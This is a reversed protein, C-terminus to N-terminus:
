SALSRSTSNPAAPPPEPMHASWSPEMASMFPSPTRSITTAPEPTGTAPLISPDLGDLDLTLYVDDTLLDVAEGIWDTRGVIDRALFIPIEEDDILRAEPESIARVGVSVTTSVHDRIRRCACAHSNRTGEYEDRLDGHADIHLVSLGGTGESAARVLGPTVSHDGGLSLHFRGDVFSARAAQYIAETMEDASRDGPEVPPLVRYGLSELSVGLEEDWTEVYASADLIAAPGAATGGGYSVTGEYPIPLVLVDADPSEPLGLFTAPGSM